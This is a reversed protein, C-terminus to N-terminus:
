TGFGTESPERILYEACQIALWDTLSENQVAAELGESHEDLLVRAAARAGEPTTPGADLKIIRDAIEHWKANLPDLAINQKVEDGPIVKYTLDTAAQIAHLRDCLQILEADPKNSVPEPSERKFARVIALVLRMQDPNLTHLEAEFRERIDDTADM